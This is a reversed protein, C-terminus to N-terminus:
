LIESEYEAVVAPPPLELGQREFLAVMEPTIHRGPALAGHAPPLKDERAESIVRRREAAMAKLRAAEQLAWAKTEETKMERLVPPTLRFPQGTSDKTATDALTAAARARAYARGEPTAIHRALDLLAGPSPMFQSDPKKSWALMAAALSSEPPDALIQEYPFWWAAWEADTRKPQPYVQFYAAMLLRMADAGAPLRARNRLGPLARRAEALLGADRAIEAVIEDEPGDLDLYSELRTSLGSSTTKALRTDSTSTLRPTDM